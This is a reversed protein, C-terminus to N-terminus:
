RKSSKRRGAKKGTTQKASSKRPGRRQTKGATSGTGPPLTLAVLNEGVTNISYSGRAEARDLLGQNHANVMTQPLRSPRSRGTLRCAELVDDATIADKRADAKAQFRYFYAVVAVFQTDSTPAKMSVFTKIDNLGTIEPAQTSLPADLPRLITSPQAAIHQVQASLGLKERAWRLIREQDVTEFGSLAEIVAKVADFDDLHTKSM